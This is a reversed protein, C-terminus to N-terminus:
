GQKDHAALKRRLAQNERKLDRLQTTLQGIRGKLVRIEELKANLTAERGAAEPSADAAFLATREREDELRAELDEITADKAAIKIGVEDGKSVPVPTEENAPVTAHTRSETAPSRPRPLSKLAASVSEFEALQPIQMKRALRMYRHARDESYDQSALWPLFAGHALAAKKENLKSGCKWAEEVALRAHNEANTWHRRIDADLNERTDRSVAEPASVITM